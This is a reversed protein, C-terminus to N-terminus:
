EAIPKPIIGREEFMLNVYKKTEFENLNVLIKILLKKTENINKTSDVNISILKKENTMPYNRDNNPNNLHNKLVMKLSDIPYKIEYNVTINDTNIYIIERLKSDFISQCFQLPQIKYIKEKTELKFLAYEKTCDIEDLIKLVQNFNALTDIDYEIFKNDVLRFSLFYEIPKEVTLQKKNNRNQGCSSLLYTLILIFITKKM